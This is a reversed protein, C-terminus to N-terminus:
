TTLDVLYVLTGAAVADDVPEWFGLGAVAFASLVYNFWNLCTREAKGDGDIDIAYSPGSFRPLLVANTAQKLLTGPAYAGRCTFSPRMDMESALDAVPRLLDPLSASLDPRDPIAMDAINGPTSPSCAGLVLASVLSGLVHHSSRRAEM